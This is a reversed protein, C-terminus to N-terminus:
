CSKLASAKTTQRDALLRRVRGEIMPDIAKLCDAIDRLDDDSMQELEETAHLMSRAFGAIAKPHVKPHKLRIFDRLGLAERILQLFVRTPDHVLHEDMLWKSGEDMAALVSALDIRGLALVNEATMAKANLADLMEQFARVQRLRQKEVYNM